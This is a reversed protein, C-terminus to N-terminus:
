SGEVLRLTPPSAPPSAPRLHADWSFGCRACTQGAYGVHYACATRSAAGDDSAQGQHPRKDTVGDCPAHISRNEACETGDCSHETVSAEQANEGTSDATTVNHREPPSVPSLYRSFAEEFQSLLYGKATDRKADPLYGFDVTRPNIKYPDLLRALDRTTFAKGGRGEWPSEELSGLYATIPESKTRDIEYEVFYALCDRLLRVGQSQDDAAAEGSLTLASDRSSRAWHGGALDAIALLPEWFDAARDSCEFLADPIDPRAEKLKAIVEASAWDEIAKRVPAAAARAETLRWREVQESPRKRKLEIKISRDSITEPVNKIGALAKPGFVDLSEWKHTQKDCLDYTTGRENGSNFIGRITDGKEDGSKFKLDVEDLLLTPHEKSTRRVLVAPTASATLWPRFVVLNLLRLTRSKGCRKDVSTIHLYAAVESADIVHTHAIWLALTVAQLYSLSIYRRVLNMLDDLIADLSLRTASAQSISEM